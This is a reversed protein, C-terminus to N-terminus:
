KYVSSSLRIFRLVAYVVHTTLSIARKLLQCTHRKRSSNDGHNCRKTEPLDLFERAEQEQKYSHGRQKRHKLTRPLATDGPM